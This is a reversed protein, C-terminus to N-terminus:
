AVAGVVDRLQAIDDDPAGKYLVAAEVAAPEWGAALLRAGHISARMSVVIRIGRDRAAKRVKQVHTVWARVSSEAEKPVCALALRRELKQDYDLAMTAFRDLTAGDLQFRGVYTRDAGHGYTNAAAVGIFEPHREVMGDPFAFRENALAANFAVLAEPASADIEDFLFVGGHEFADRFGTRQYSGDPRIFGLLQFADDVAGTFRFERELADAAQQALHTKGSGAPGVLMVNVGATLAQLFPGLSEHAGDITVPEAGDRDIRVVHEVVTTAPAAHERILEVIRGEDIPAPTQQQGFLALAAALAEAAGAPPAPAAAPAAIPAPTPEPVPEPTPEALRGDRAHQANDADRIARATEALVSRLTDVTISEWRLGAALALQWAHTKLSGGTIIDSLQDDTIRLAHDIGCGDLITRYARRAQETALRSRAEADLEIASMQSTQSAATTM